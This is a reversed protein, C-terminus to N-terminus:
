KGKGSSKQVYKQHIGLANKATDLSLMACKLRVPGLEVGLMEEIDAHTMKAVQAPTKGKLEDSLMSGSAVSIACGQAQMSVGAIRGKGDFAFAYSIRDGCVPNSETHEIDCRPLKHTNRPHKYHDLINERYMGDGAFDKDDNERM